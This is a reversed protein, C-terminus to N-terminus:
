CNDDKSRQCAIEWLDKRILAELSYTYPNKIALYLKDFEEKAAELSRIFKEDKSFLLSIDFTYSTSSSLLSFLFKSIISHIVGIIM